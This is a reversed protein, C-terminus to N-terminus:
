WAVLADLGGAARSCGELSDPRRLLAVSLLLGEDNLAATVQLTPKSLDVAWGFRAALSAGISGALADSSVAKFRRGSRKGDM